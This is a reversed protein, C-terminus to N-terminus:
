IERPLHSRDGTLTELCQRLCRAARATLSPLWMSPDHKVSLCILHDLSDRQGKFLPFFLFSALCSALTCPFWCSFSGLSSFSPAEDDDKGLHEWHKSKQPFLVRPVPCLFVPIRRWSSRATSQLWGAECGLVACGQWCEPISHHTVPTGCWLWDEGPAVEEM